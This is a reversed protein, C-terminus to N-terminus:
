RRVGTVSAHAITTTHDRDFSVQACAHRSQCECSDRAPKGRMCDRSSVAEAARERQTANSVAKTTRCSCPTPAKASLPM